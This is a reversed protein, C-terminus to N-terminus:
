KIMCERKERISQLIRKAFCINSYHGSRIAIIHAKVYVGILSLDGILDLVKHRVMEDEFRAGEPNLVKDGQILVANDLGGGRILGQKLLPEIEEFLSFTRCPAIEKKYNEKNVIFHYYQSKLYPSHPYHLTYSIQYEDAPIAILHIENQSFHIPRELIFVEREELLEKIGAKELHDIFIKASGDGVMVEPGSIEMILNDIGFVFLASLLHEVTQISAKGKGIQTYRSTKQAMDVDAFIEPTGPLDMRKFVIGTNAPAPILRLTVDKGTFLGQGKLLIENQITQQRM